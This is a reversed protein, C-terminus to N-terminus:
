KIPTDNCLTNIKFNYMSVQDAAADTLELARNAINKLMAKLQSLYQDRRIDEDSESHAAGMYSFSRLPLSTKDTSVNEALSQQLAMPVTLNLLAHNSDVENTKLILFLSHHVSQKLQEGTVTSYSTNSISSPSLVFTHGEQYQARKPIYLVDGPALHIECASSNSSREGDGENDMQDSISLSNVAVPWVSWISAGEIQMVLLDGSAVQRGFGVGIAHRSM